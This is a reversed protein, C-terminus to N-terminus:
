PVLVLIEWHGSHGIPHHMPCWERDISHVMPALRDPDGSAAIKPPKLPGSITILNPAVVVKAIFRRLYGQRATADEWRLRALTVEGLRGVADPTVHRDATSLQREVLLIEQELDARRTRQSALRSTFDRDRPSVIGHEILDFM